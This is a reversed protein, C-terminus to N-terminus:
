MCYKVLGSLLMDITKVQSDTLRDYSKILWTQYGIYALLVTFVAIAFAKSVKM